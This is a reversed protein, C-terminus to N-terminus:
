LNTQLRDEGEGLKQQLDNNVENVFRAITGFRECLHRKLGDTLRGDLLITDGKKLANSTEKISFGEKPKSGKKKTQLKYPPDGLERSYLEVAEDDQLIVLFNECDTWMWCINAWGVKQLAEDDLPEEEWQGRVKRKPKRYRKRNEIAKDDTLARIRLYIIDGTDPDVGLEHHTGPDNERNGFDRLPM